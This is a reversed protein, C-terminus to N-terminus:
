RIAPPLIAIGDVLQLDFGVDVLGFTPDWRRIPPLRFTAGPPPATGEADEHEPERHFLAVGGAHFSSTIPAGRGEESVIGGPAWLMASGGSCREGLCIREPTWTVEGKGEDPAVGDKATFGFEALLPRLSRPPRRWDLAAEFEKRLRHYEADNEGRRPDVSAHAVERWLGDGSVVLWGVEPPQAGRAGEPNLERWTKFLVVGKGSVAVPEIRVLAVSPGTARATGGALLIALTAARGVVDVARM